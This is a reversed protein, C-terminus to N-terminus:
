PKLDPTLTFDPYVLHRKSIYCRSHHVGAVWGCHECIDTRDPYQGPIVGCPCGM